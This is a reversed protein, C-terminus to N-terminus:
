KGAQLGSLVKGTSRVFEGLYKNVEEIEVGPYEGVLWSRYTQLVGGALYDTLM